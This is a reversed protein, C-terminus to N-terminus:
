ERAPVAPAKPAITTLRPRAGHDRALASGDVLSLGLLATTRACADAVQEVPPRWTSHSKM